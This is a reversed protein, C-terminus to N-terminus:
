KTLAELRQRSKNALEHQPHKEAVYTFFDAAIKLAKQKSVSSNAAQALLESCRGAEFGSRAQWSKFAEPAQDSGFGFMVRQFEPIAKDFQRDAFYIEGMMFRSRAALESRFNDAVEAYFRLAKAHENLQQYAYGTEYFVQPLYDSAPFRTRLEKYWQIAEDWNRTQAASQGGHLLALERVLREAPDRVTKANDDHKRIWQRAVEYGALAAAYDARKFRCEGIMMTADFALKGAPHKEAQKIFATEANEFDDLKFYSWALRYLSKESLENDFSKEAAIAFQTAAAKWDNALYLKQGIFYSAEAVLSTDPYKAILTTFHEVAEDEKGSEQMSWGLEYLVKDMSPYNPVEKALRQLKEAARAPQNEKQDILALEYLAHGLNTGQPPIALYTELDVRAQEYNGLNRLAIGHTLTAEAQLPHAKYQELMRDLTSLADAYKGMQMLAFGKGYQAYPLLGPDLDSQLVDEFYRVAREFDGDGSAIQALKYRAQDAMRSKPASKIMETWTAVAKDPKGAVLNAQGVMLMAEEARPGNPDATHSAEFAQAAQEARDAMLHAQGILMQAEAIQTPQEISGLEHNLMQVTADFKASANSAAAARLVWIPRQINEKPTSEILERYTRAADELKGTLLRGEAAVFTVDPLLMHQPFKESFEVALDLARQPQDVQLASFAANYLARPALQHTPQDRYAQEFLALSQSMTSPDMSLAEALDLRVDMAFEGEAGRDLQQKAIAAAKRPAGKSIQIRALWHAAETAAVANSQLLVKQFRKAAKDIDGDRYTSQASALMASAAYPSDPFDKLLQEYKPAADGPRDAQVLAFAQRFLAYSQDEVSKTSKYAADFAAIAKDYQKRLIMLDGVRLHVDTVLESQACGSLLQNYSAVAEDFKKIEEQAVGRAYLADCRLPSDKTAPLTLLENYYEIAQEPRGLGYASEGCYFIARDLFRSEPNEERLAQFVRITQRLKISNRQEGSGAVSYLCWGYNALSEERLDYDQDQLARRFAASAAVYDPEEQQMYCVGLYHAAQSAMPHQPYEKLFEHWGKIALDIAGGTQFNAADAYAAMSAESPEEDGHVSSTLTFSVFVMALFLLTRRAGCATMRRASSTALLAFLPSIM